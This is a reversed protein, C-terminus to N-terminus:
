PKAKPERGLPAGHFGGLRYVEYRSIPVGNRERSLVSLHALTGFHTAILDRRDRNTETVYLLPQRLLELSAPPTNLWRNEENLQIVPLHTYYAFWATSAYDTTIIAVAGTREQEIERTLSDFGVGLLRAFPDQRGLPILGFIAQAYCAALLVFAVPVALL